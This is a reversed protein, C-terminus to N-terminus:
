PDAGAKLRSAIKCRLPCEPLLELQVILRSAEEGAGVRDAEGLLLDGLQTLVDLRV